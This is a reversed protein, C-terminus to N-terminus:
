VKAICNLSNMPQADPQLGTQKVQQIVNIKSTELAAHHTYSPAITGSQGWNSAVTGYVFKIWRKHSQLIVHFRISYM